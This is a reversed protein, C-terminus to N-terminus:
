RFKSVLGLVPDEAYAASGVRGLHNITSILIASGVPLDCRAMLKLFVSILESITADEVRIIALCDGGGTSPLAPPFCQDSLIFASTKRSRCLNKIISHPSDPCNSCQLTSPSFSTAIVLKEKYLERVHVLNSRM